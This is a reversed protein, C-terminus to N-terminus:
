PVVQFPVKSTLIGLPTTVKIVGSTAGKPVRVTIKSDSEVKFGAAAGNFSVSSAGTFNFGSLTVTSEARGSLPTVTFATMDLCYFVGRGKSGGQSTLGYLKGNSHLLPTQVCYMGETMRPDRSYVVSFAEGSLKIRYLVGRGGAGGLRTAGYLYGDKAQVLGALPNSGDSGSFTHLVTFEGSLTLRYVLGLAMAGGAFCTGYLNGDSAQMLNYSTAGNANDFKHLLIIQGSPTVKIVTGFGTGGKLTTGYLNGDTGAVLMSGMNGLTAFDSKQLRAFPSVVSGSPTIKYITGSQQNSSNSTIGYLNGDKAQVPPSLPYSGDETNKFDYLVRFVGSATIKFVVGTRLKGGSYTTGYFDGDNGLSLGGFAQAGQTLNFSNLVTLKGEPTFRFIAGRNATGGQESAGFISGDKGLALMGIEHPYLPDGPNSGFDYLVTLTQARAAGLSLALGTLLLTRTICQHGTM